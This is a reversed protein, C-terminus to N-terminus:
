VFLYVCYLGFTLVLKVYGKVLQDKKNFNVIYQAVNLYKTLHNALICNRSCMHICLLRVAPFMYFDLVSNVEICFTALSKIRLIVSLLKVCIYLIHAVM